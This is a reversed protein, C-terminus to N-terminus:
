LELKWFIYNRPKSELEIKKIERVKPGSVELGLRSGWGALMPKLVIEFSMLTKPM